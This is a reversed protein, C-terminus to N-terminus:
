DNKNEKLYLELYEKNIRHSSMVADYVNYFHFFLASLQIIKGFAVGNDNEKELNNTVISSGAVYLFPVGFLYFAGKGYEENYVHGGSPMFFSLLGAKFPDKPQHFNWNPRLVGAVYMKDSKSGVIPSNPISYTDKQVMKEDKGIKVQDVNDILQKIKETSLKTSFQWGKPFFEVYNPTSNIIKGSYVVGSNTILTDQSFAITFLFVILYKKM